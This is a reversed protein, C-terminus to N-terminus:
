RTMCFLPPHDGLTTCCPPEMRKEQNLTKDLREKNAPVIQKKLGAETDGRILAPGKEKEIIMAQKYEKYCKDNSPDSCIKVTKFM